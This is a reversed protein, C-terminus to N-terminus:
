LKSKPLTQTLIEIAEEVRDNKSIKLDPSYLIIKGNRMECILETGNEVHLEEAMKKPLRIGISKGWSSATIKKQM